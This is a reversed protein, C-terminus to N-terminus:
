STFYKKFKEWFAEFNAENSSIIKLWEKVLHLFTDIEAKDM